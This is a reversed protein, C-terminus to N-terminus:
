VVERDEESRHEDFGNQSLEVTTSSEDGTLELGRRSAYGQGKHLGQRISHTPVPAQRQRATFHRRRRTCQRWNGHQRWPSPVTVNAGGRERQRAPGVHLNSDQSPRACIQHQDPRSSKPRATSPEPGFSFPKNRKLDLLIHLNEKAEFISGLLHIEGFWIKCHHNYLNCVM